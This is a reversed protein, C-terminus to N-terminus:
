GEEIFFPYFISGDCLYVASVISFEPMAPFSVEEIEGGEQSAEGEEEVPNIEGKSDGENNGSLM